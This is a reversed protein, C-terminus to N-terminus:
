SRRLEEAALRQKDHSRSIWWISLAKIFWWQGALILFGLGLFMVSFWKEYEAMEFQATFLFWWSGLVLVALCIGVNSFIVPKMWKGYRGGSNWDDLRVASTWWMPHWVNLRKLSPFWRFPRSQNETPQNALFARLVMDAVLINGISMWYVLCGIFQLEFYDDFSRDDIIAVLGVCACLLGGIGIVIIGTLVGRFGRGRLAHVIGIIVEVMGIGICLVSGVANWWYPWLTDMM